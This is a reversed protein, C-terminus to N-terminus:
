GCEKISDRANLDARNDILLHCVDVLGKKAAAHLATCGRPLSITVFAYSAACIHLLFVCHTQTRVRQRQFQCQGRFTDAISVSGGDKRNDLQQSQFVDIHRM